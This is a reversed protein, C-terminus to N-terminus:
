EHKENEEHKYCDYYTFSRYYHTASTTEVKGNVHIKAFGPHRIGVAIQKVMVAQEAWSEFNLANMVDNLWSHYSRVCVYVPVKSARSMRAIVAAIIDAAESMIDPHMFPLLYVGQTGESVAIYAEIRGNKRYVLGDMDSHPAAVQQLMTPVINAILATIGLQDNDTEAELTVQSDTASLQMAEHQWITQRAYTAYGASRLTEFLKCRIEVEAILSHAGHKGAERSMADLIHLWATDETDDDLTPALYVIHAMPDDPHYRFQGVVAQQEESRTVLTYIGRPFLLSSLLFSNQGRADRTLQMESDLMMGRATLRRVLPLDVLTMNRTDTATSM